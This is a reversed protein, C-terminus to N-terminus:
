SWPARTGDNERRAVAIRGGQRPERVLQGRAYALEDRRAVAPGLLQRCAAHEHDTCRGATDQEGVLEAGGATVDRERDTTVRAKRAMVEAAVDVPPEVRHADQGLRYVRRVIEGSRAALWRHLQDTIGTAAGDIQVRQLARTDPEDAARDIGLALGETEGV